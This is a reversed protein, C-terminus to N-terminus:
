FDTYELMLDSDCTHGGNRPQLENWIYDHQYGPVALVIWGKHVQCIM